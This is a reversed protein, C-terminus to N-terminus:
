ACGSEFPGQRCKLAGAPTSWAGDELSGSGGAQRSPKLACCKSLMDEMIADEPRTHGEHWHMNHDWHGPCGYVASSVYCYSVEGINPQHAPDFLFDFALSQTGLREAVRFAIEVCRKDIRAPDYDLRGSGSARFDDPRNQRIFAFARKGIITVRTDFANHPLFDQFYVYGKQRPMQRRFSLIRQVTRPVRALKEWFQRAGTTTHLRTAIDRFYGPSSPFGRGFAQRCLKEAVRRTRVLRVNSSGAGCRLKFVKPWHTNAVWTMAERRDSLVWTPILPAKVAELLYKQAVKDDYHWCTATDPFVILGHAELAAIIQRAVLQDRPSSNAWHWLVAELHCCQRMVDTALCDVPKFPIGKEVCYHTWRDSFSGARQHIGIM